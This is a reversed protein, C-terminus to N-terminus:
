PSEMCASASSFLSIMRETLFIRENQHLTEMTVSGKEPKEMTVVAKEPKEILRGMPPAPGFFGCLFYAYLFLPILYGCLFFPQFGPNKWSKWARFGGPGTKL